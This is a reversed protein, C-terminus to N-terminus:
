MGALRSFVGTISAGYKDRSHEIALKELRCFSGIIFGKDEDTLKKKKALEDLRIIIKNEISSMELEYNASILGKILGSVYPWAKISKEASVMGKAASDQFTQGIKVGVDTTVKSAACGSVCFALIILFLIQIFLRKM